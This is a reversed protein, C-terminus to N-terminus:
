HQIDTIKLHGNVDIITYSITGKSEIEGHDSFLQTARNQDSNDSTSQEITITYTGDQNKVFNDVKIAKKTIVYPEKDEPHSGPFSTRCYMIVTQKHIQTMNAIYKAIIEKSESGDAFLADIYIPDYKAATQTAFDTEAQSGDTFSKDNENVKAELIEETAGANLWDTFRDDILAKALANPDSLLDSSLEISEVTPLTEATAETNNNTTEGSQSTSTATNNPKAAAKDGCGNAALLLPVALALALFKRKLYDKGSKNEATTRSKRTEAIISKEKNNM